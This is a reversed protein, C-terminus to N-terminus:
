AAPTSSPSGAASDADPGHGPGGPGGPGGTQTGTVTFSEDVAVIVPQGDATVLHAEYVGDSDTEVRQVTAGPYADLAAAQVKAANDGTLLQEDSRQPQSQDGAGPGQFGDDDLGEGPAGSVSPTPSPTADAAMASLSGALAGGVLLGAVAFAAPRGWGRDARAAVPHAFAGPASGEAPVPPVAPGIRETRPDPANTDM